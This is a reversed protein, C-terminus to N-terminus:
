IMSSPRFITANSQSDAGNSTDRICEPSISASAFLELSAIDRIGDPVKKIWGLSEIWHLVHLQLFCYVENIEHPQTRSKQLHEVWHLCAYQIEPLLHREVRSAEAETTLAGLRDSRRNNQEFSTSM